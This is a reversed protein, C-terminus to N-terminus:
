LPSLISLIFPLLVRPRVCLSLRVTKFCGLDSTTKTTDLALISSPHLNLDLVALTSVITSPLSQKEYTTLLSPAPRPNLKSPPRSLGRPSLGLDPRDSISIIKISNNRNGLLDPPAASFVPAKFAPSWNSSTFPLSTVLIDLISAQDRIFFNCSPSTFRRTLCGAVLDEHVM